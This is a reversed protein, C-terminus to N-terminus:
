HKFFVRERVIQSDKGIWFDDGLARSVGIGEKLTNLRCIGDGDAVAPGSLHVADRSQQVAVPINVNSCM